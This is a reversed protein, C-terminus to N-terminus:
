GGVHSRGSEPALAHVTLHVFSDARVGRNSVAEYEVHVQHAALMDPIELWVSRGDPSRHVAHVGLAARGIDGTLPHMDPSGYRETWDYNWAEIVFDDSQPTDDLPANFRMVLGDRVARVHVPMLLPDDTRRVRYFGGPETKDSSWGFLGCLYLAGDSPHFRGRMVGTPVEIPLPVMGGQHVGGVEDELLRYVQGTGYSMGLLAGGLDGWVGEPVRVQASPSRDITPHLWCLPPDYDDSPTGTGSWNNGYFGGPEIRNIRNAPTWHGQQDSCWITGDPDVWVGNPARLGSAVIESRSGDPSVRIITGHRPHIPPKAHRAAKAYYLNGESDAQLGSCPEHFHETNMADDNFSEYFDTEHDGDRDILRTIQDRGVVLIEDGEGGPRTTLGLPQSLGSAIRQWRLSGLSEDLGEVRWVDGSWTTIAAADGGDLFDFDGFRMWSRYPNEIPWALRDIAFPGTRREAISMAFEELRSRPGRWRVLEAVEDHDPSALRAGPEPGAAWSGSLDGRVAWATVIPEGSEAALSRVEPGDLARGFVRIGDMYGSLYPNAPFNRAGFGFRVAHGDVREKPRLTGTADEIGDVFLRVRATEHEWSLAVHHWAGDSIERSGEVVGVWGVDFCLRGQRLFLVKGNPVWERDPETQSFIVGDKTTNIWAAVTLDRDLFEIAADTWEALATGDFDLSRGKVGTRWTVGDLSLDRRGTASNLSAEGEGSDCDWAGLTPAPVREDFSGPAPAYVLLAESLDAGSGGLPRGELDTLTARDGDPGDLALSTAAEGASRAVTRTDGAGGFEVSHAGALTVTETWLPARDGTDTPRELARAVRVVEEGGAGAQLPMLCISVHRAGSGPTLTAVINTGALSLEASGADAGGVAVALGGEPAHLAIARGSELWEHGDHEFSALRLHLPEEGGSFRVHRVYAFSGEGGEGGALEEVSTQGVRYRVRPGQDSLRIGEWEGLWDPLPGYPPDRPDRFRGDISVGPARPVSWEAEGDIRPWIGHPGDYVIGRLAVFDGSWGCAWRLTDTDFLMARNEGVRIAIGKCAINDPTVEIAASLFPGYDMASWPADGDQALAPFVVALTAITAHLQRRM